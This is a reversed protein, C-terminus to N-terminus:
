KRLSNWWEILKFKIVYGEDRGTILAIQDDSLGAMAAATESTETVAGLCLPPFVVCWWNQGQGEGIVVRLARYTGAPLSFDDYDKTPFWCDELSVTVPYDYGAQAVVAAGADALAQLRDSLISEAESRDTVGDLCDGAAALVGDRVQLKLTQDADSDSNAIVHLRVVRDALASQSGSAWVGTVLTLSFALLLACEWIHLRKSTM